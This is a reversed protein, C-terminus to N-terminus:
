AVAPRTTPDAVPDLASQLATVARPPLPRGALRAAHLAAGVDPPLLPARLDYHHPLDALATTFATQVLASAFTGGSYSTPITDETTFGLTRATADVLTSLEHGADTLIAQAGADGATAARDVVRSLAAIESRDGRWRNLVVDVLDLDAELHLHDTLVQRLPGPEHRGDAMRSFLNLAQIAIWYASGEDGFLEGWGGVRTGVGRRAGYTMSGTGSIVNIGDVAGLSGAWGCVMDNDCTYRDHGLAARPATDLAPVDASVEGYGPLGLFAHEIDAPTAGALNCVEGIAVGLVQAVLDAGLANGFYYCSAARTRALLDGDASILSLATKTGGGDVGLYM